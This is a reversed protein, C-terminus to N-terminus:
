RGCGSCWQHLASSIVQNIESTPHDDEVTIKQVIDVIFIPQRVSSSHSLGMIEAEPVLLIDRIYEKIKQLHARAQRTVKVKYTDVRKCRRWNTSFKMQMLLIM